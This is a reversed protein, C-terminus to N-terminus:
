IRVDELGVSLRLMGKTVARMACSSTPTGWQSTLVPMSILSRDAWAGAARKFSQMRDYLREARDYHGDFRLL